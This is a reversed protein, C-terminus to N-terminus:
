AGRSEGTEHPEDSFGETELEDAGSESSQGAGQEEDDGTATPSLRSLQASLAQRVASLAEPGIARAAELAGLAAQSAATEESLGLERAAARAGEVADTATRAVAAKAESAGQIAGSVASRLTGWPNTAGRALTTWAGQVAGRALDGVEGPMIDAANMAGRTAHRAIDAGQGGLDGTRELVESVAGSVRSAVDRAAISGTAAAAVAMRTSSAMQFATVGVAVDMGPVNRIYSYPFQAVYRLGPVAGLVRSVEQSQARLEELVEEQEAGGEEHVGRLTNLAILGVIFAMAFLFDFGTLSIAPFDFGGNPATWGFSISLERVSFYDAFKGGVLPGLGAGLSTALSAGALYATAQGQPALKMGITGTTLTVGATAIGAFIHLVVLLPITLFYREPMTTFAWGLIVLVYLSTSLSLIVKSGYQDVLPGWVRLFLVNFVQSLVTLSIVASLPMGLRQLMYVAFFPIALNATFGRLFLFGMLQRFNRDRLPTAITEVLSPQGGPTPQMLPEPMLSMFLPGAMGLFVAGFLLAMTYGYIEDGASASGKWYDVFLAAGLGFVVAAVTGFTLQRSFFRGLINQPVLDRVWGNWSCTTIATIMGRVGMLGLLVAIAGGSPVDLFLPILAIPFWLAQALLFTGAALIKRRKLKEVLLISPIQLPQMIFPVSALIGIQFNNAGMALAYAALFGSGAISGFGISVTGQMTMLRLGRSVEQDSLTAKPRFWQAPNLFM